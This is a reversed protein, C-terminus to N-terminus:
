DVDIRLGRRQQHTTILQVRHEFNALATHGGRKILIGLERLLRSTYVVDLGAYLVYLPHDIDIAAWGTVKTAKYEKRFVEYLAKSTDPADPDVYVSSLPKLGLGAGGDAETRPDCLHALIYTDFTRAGLSELTALGVRDLVLLDFPANHCVFRLDARALARRITAAFRDVRLVWAEREDGFQVLRCAFNGSFINLGTTETDLAIVRVARNLFAEFGALDDEHEPFHITVPDGSVRYTQTKM